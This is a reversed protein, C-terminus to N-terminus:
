PAGRVWAITWAQNASLRLLPAFTQWVHLALALLQLVSCHMAQASSPQIPGPKEHMAVKGQVDLHVGRTALYLEIGM